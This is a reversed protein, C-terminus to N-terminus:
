LIFFGLSSKKQQAYSLILNLGNNTEADLMARTLDSSGDEYALIKYDLNLAAGAAHIRQLLRPLEVEENWAAFCFFLPM